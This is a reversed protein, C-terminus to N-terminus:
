TYNEVVTRWTLMILQWTYNEAMLTRSDDTICWFWFEKLSALEESM